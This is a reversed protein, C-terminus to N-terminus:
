YRINPCILRFGSVWEKKEDVSPCEIHLVRKQLVLMFEKVEALDRIEIVKDVAITGM